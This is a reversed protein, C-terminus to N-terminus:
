GAANNMEEKSALPVPNLRRIRGERDQAESIASRFCEPTCCPRGLLVYTAKEVDLTKRSCHCLVQM